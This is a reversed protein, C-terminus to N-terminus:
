SQGLGGRAGKGIVNGATKGIPYNFPLHLSLLAPFPLKAGFGESYWCIHNRLTRFWSQKRYRQSEVASIEVM